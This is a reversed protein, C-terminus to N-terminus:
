KLFRLHNYVLERLEISLVCSEPEQIAPELGASLVFFFCLCRLAISLNSFRTYFVLFVISIDNNQLITTCKCFSVFLALINM